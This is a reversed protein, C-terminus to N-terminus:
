RCSCVFYGDFRDSEFVCSGLGYFDFDFLAGVLILFGFCNNGFAFQLCYQLSLFILSKKIGRKKRKKDFGIYIEWNYFYYCIPIIKSMIYFNNYM